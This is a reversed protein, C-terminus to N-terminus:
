PKLGRRRWARLWRTRFRALIARASKRLRARRRSSSAAEIEEQMGHFGSSNIVDIAATVGVVPGVSAFVAAESLDESMGHFGVSDIVDIAALIPGQCEGDCVVHEAPTEPPFTPEAPQQVEPAACAVLMMAIILGLRLANRMSDEMSSHWFWAQRFAAIQSPEIRVIREVKFTGPNLLASM